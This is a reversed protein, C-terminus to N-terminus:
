LVCPGATELGQDIHYLRPTGYPFIDSLDLKSDNALIGWLKRAVQHTKVSGGLVVCNIGERNWVYRNGDLANRTIKLLQQIIETLPGQHENTIIITAEAEEILDLIHALRMQCLYSSISTVPEEEMM